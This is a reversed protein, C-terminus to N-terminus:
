WGLLLYRNRLFLEITLAKTLFDAQQDETPVYALTFLPPDANVLSWFWHWKVLFYRTRNTIRHRTALQYAGANDEYVRARVTAQPQPLRLEAVMERVLRLLPVFTRLSYSLASYEAELTSQAIDTQLQSKWILPFGGVVVVFGTRSRVADQNTDPERKYLGAFDADCFLTVDLTKTKHVITGKDQTGKLYRIITKVAKAHSQKPENSFRAAQSVAFAIDPRTNTSLYLLMGIISRYNWEETMPMGEPDSGLGVIASPLANAKCDQMKTAELIKKVLGHQTLTITDKDHAIKIGLYESFSEERTLSFGKEKLDQILKDIDSPNAAAIGADDVYFIFLIGEKYVLCPDFASQKFGLEKLAGLINQVWLYPSIKLGYLSKNLRLCTRPGLPSRFGRPLHIWIPHDEPLDSQVFANSFDIAITKWGLYSTLVLFLRVTSWSVVPAYADIEDKNEQLDGRVCYRGKYKKIQGDPTRKVRFAWTGPLIKMKADSMPVETWTGKGELEKIELEAAKIWKERNEPDSMAQDYSFLDPDENKKRSAKFISTTQLSDLVQLVPPSPLLPQLTSPQPPHNSAQDVFFLSTVQNVADATALCIKKVQNIAETVVSGGPKDYTLVTRQTRARTSRRVPTWESSSAPPTTKPPKSTPQKPQKPARAVRPAAPAPHTPTPTPAPLPSPRPTPRPPVSPPSPTPERQQSPERQVQPERQQVSPYLPHPQPNQRERQSSPETPVPRMPPPIGLPPSPTPAPTPQLLPQTYVPLVPTTVPAAHSTDASRFEYLQDAQDEQDHIHAEDSDPIYQYVSDGFMRYWEDSNFDPLENPGRSVSAFWDDFVVNFQPTVKGTRLNLTLPAKSSHKKCPGLHLGKQSRAEWRPIKKGDAIRNDLVFIPCGFVHLTQYFEPKVKQRTFMEHPSIGTDQRPIMNYLLVSYDVAFPWLVPDIAAPWHTAAHHLITRAMSMITQIAREAVGNHHHAGVGAFQHVQRFRQLDQNFDASTFATGNDSIFSQPIVGYDRCLAEYSHKAKLTEHSNLHTQHVVHIYGTSHDVFICGGTYREDDHEKGYTNPLRGKVRSVFHDVSVCQGPHLHGQRLKLAQSPDAVSRTGPAPRRRQKGFQCAACLPLEQIRAAASHLRRKAESHALTGNRLLVQLRRFGIHGLRQHWRLLEKSAEPLNQNATSVESIHAVLSVVARKVSEAGFATTHPINNSPHPQAHIAGLHVDGSVRIGDRGQQTLKVQPFLDCFSNTSLLRDEADPLYLAPMKIQRLAGDTTTVYWCVTGEGQVRDSLDEAIGTLPGNGQKPRLPGEFDEKHPTISVTAGSDWFILFSDKRKEAAAAAQQVGQPTALLARLGNLFRTSLSEDNLNSRLYTDSLQYAVQTENTAPAAPSPSTTPEPSRPSPASAPSFSLRHPTPPRFNIKRRTGSSPSNDQKHQKPKHKPSSNRARLEKRKKMGAQFAAERERAQSETPPVYRPCEGPRRGNWCCHYHSTDILPSPITYVGTVLVGPPSPTPPTSPETPAQTPESSSPAVSRPPSPSPDRAPEPLPTRPRHPQFRPSRPPPRPVAVATPKCFASARPSATRPQSRPHRDILHAPDDPREHSKQHSNKRLYRLESLVKSLSNSLYEMRQRHTKQQHALRRAYYLQTLRAASAGGVLVATLTQPVIPNMVFAELYSLAVTAYPLLLVTVVVFASCLFFWLLFQLAISPDKPRRRSGHRAALWIRPDDYQSLLSDSAAAAYSVSPRTGTNNRPGSTHTSSTHTTTWSSCKTCWHFTKGNHTKTTPEGSKPGVKKWSTKPGSRRGNQNRTRDNRGHSRGRNRGGGGNNRPRNSNRGNQDRKTPCDRAWHGTKGCRLCTDSSRNPTDSSGSSSSSTPTGVSAQLAKVVLKEEVGFQSCILNVAAADLKSRATPGGPVAIGPPWTGNNRQFRYLKQAEAVLHRWSVGKEKLYKTKDSGSMTHCDHLANRLRSKLNRLDHRYDENNSGGASLLHELIALELDTDWASASELQEALETLKVGYQDLDQAPYSQPTLTKIETKVKSLHDITERSVIAVFEYLVVPFPDNKFPKLILQLSNDISSFLVQTLATDNQTDYMDHLKSLRKCEEQLYAKTFLGYHELVNVMRHGTTPALETTGDPALPKFTVTEHPHHVFSATWMGCYKARDSIRNLFAIFDQGRTFRTETDTLYVPEHLHRELSQAAKDSQPRRMMATLPIPDALRDPGSWDPLPPYRDMSPTFHGNETPLLLGLTPRQTKATIAVPATSPNTSPSASSPSPSPANVGTTVGINVGSPRATSPDLDLVSGPASALSPPNSDEQTPSEVDEFSETPPDEDNM